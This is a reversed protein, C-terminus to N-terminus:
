LINRQPQYQYSTIILFLSVTDVGAAYMVGAATKIRHKLESDSEVEEGHKDLMETLM